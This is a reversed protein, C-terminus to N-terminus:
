AARDANAQSVEKSVGVMGRCIELVAEKSAQFDQKNMKAQSKATRVIVLHDRIYIVAFGDHRRITSGVNAAIEHTGCDIIEEDYYGADVLARKRLHDPSPYLPSVDEPLNKWLERLEAFQHSRSKASVAEQVELPYVRGEEFAASARDPRLPVFSTGTWRFHLPANM